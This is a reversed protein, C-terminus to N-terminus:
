DKFNFFIMSIELVAFLYCFFAIIVANTLISYYVVIGPKFYEVYFAASLSVIVATILLLLTNIYRQRNLSKMKKSQM